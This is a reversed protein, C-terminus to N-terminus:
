KVFSIVDRDLQTVLQGAFGDHIWKINSINLQLNLCRSVAGHKAAEGVTSDM